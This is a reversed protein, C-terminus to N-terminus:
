SVKHRNYHLIWLNSYNIIHEMLTHCALKVGKDLKSEEIAWAICEIEQCNKIQIGGRNDLEKMLYTYDPPFDMPDGKPVDEKDVKLAKELEKLQHKQQLKKKINEPNHSDCRVLKGSPM